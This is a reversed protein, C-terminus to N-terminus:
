VREREVRKHLDVITLRVIDAEDILHLINTRVHVVVEHRDVVLLCDLKGHQALIEPVIYILFLHTVLEKLLVSRM